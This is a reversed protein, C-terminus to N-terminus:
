ALAVNALLSVQDGFLEKWDEDDEDELWDGMADWDRKAREFNGEYMTEAYGRFIDHELMWRCATASYSLSERPLPCPAHWEHTVVVGLGLHRNADPCHHRSVEEGVHWTSSFIKHLYDWRGIVKDWVRLKIQQDTMDAERKSIM